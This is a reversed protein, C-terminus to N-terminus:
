RAGSGLRTAKTSCCGHAIPSPRFAPWAINVINPNGVLGKTRFTSTTACSFPSANSRTGAVGCWGVSSNRAALGNRMIGAIRSPSKVKASLVAM